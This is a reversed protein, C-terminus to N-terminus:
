LSHMAITLPLRLCVEATGLLPAFIVPLDTEVLLLRTTAKVIM